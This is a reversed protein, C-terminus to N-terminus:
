RGEGGHDAVDVVVEAVVDDGDFVRYFEKEGRGLATDDLAFDADVRLAEAGGQTGGHAHVGVHDHHALHPIEFGDIGADLGRFRPM